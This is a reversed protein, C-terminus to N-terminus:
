NKYITKELACLSTLTTQIWMWIEFHNWVNLIRNIIFIYGSQKLNLIHCSSYASISPVCTWTLKESIKATQTHETQHIINIQSPCLHMHVGNGLCSRINATQSVNTSSYETHTFVSILLHPFEPPSTPNYFLIDAKIATLTKPDSWLKIRDVYKLIREFYIVRKHGAQRM